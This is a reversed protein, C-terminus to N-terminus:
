LVDDELELSDNYVRTMSGIYTLIVCAAVSILSSLILVQKVSLSGYAKRAFMYGLGDGLAYLSVACSISKM